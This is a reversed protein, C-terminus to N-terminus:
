IQPALGHSAVYVLKAQQLHLQKAIESDPFIYQVLQPFEEMARASVDSTVSKVAIAIEAKLAASAVAQPDKSAVESSKVAM